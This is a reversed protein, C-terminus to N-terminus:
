NGLINKDPDTSKVCNFGNKVLDLMEEDNYVIYFVRRINNKPNRIGQRLFYTKM